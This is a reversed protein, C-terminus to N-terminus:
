SDWHVSKLILHGDKDCGVEDWGCWGTRDSEGHLDMYTYMNRGKGRSYGKVPKRYFKCIAKMLDLVTIGHDNRATIVQLDVIQVRIVKLPPNTAQEERASSRILQYADIDGQYDKAPM